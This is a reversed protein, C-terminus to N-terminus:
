ASLSIDVTKIKCERIVCTWATDQVEIVHTNPSLKVGM